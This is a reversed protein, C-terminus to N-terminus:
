EYPTVSADELRYGAEAVDSTSREVRMTGTVWVADFLQGGFAEGAATVAHVIQNAPPPPVHICAGFYPVLLFQDVKTADMELPVVFGPLRVRQGELASVVPAETWLAKLKELLQQARPDEDSLDEAGLEDMLTDPRWDQPILADWAIERIDTDGDEDLWIVKDDGPAMEQPASVPSVQAPPAAGPAAEAQNTDFQLSGVYTFVGLIPALLWPRVGM